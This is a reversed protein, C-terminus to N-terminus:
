VSIFHKADRFKVTEQRLTIIFHITLSMQFPPTDIGEAISSKEPHPPKDVPNIAAPKSTNDATSILWVAASVYPIENSKEVVVDPSCTFLGDIESKIQAVSEILRQAEIWDSTEMVANNNRISALLELVPSIDSLLGDRIDLSHQCIDDLSNRNAIIIAELRDLLMKKIQQPKTQALETLTSIWEDILNTLVFSTQTVSDEILLFM